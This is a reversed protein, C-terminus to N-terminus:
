GEPSESTVLRDPDRRTRRNRIITRLWWVLLFGLSIISLWIGLGSFATSRITFQDSQLLVQGDVTRLEYRVLFSGSSRVNFPIDVTSRGPPVTVVATNAPLAKGADSSTSSLQVRDSRLTFRLKLPAPGDNQFEMPVVTRSATLTVTPPGTIRVVSLWRTAAQNVDDIYARQQRADLGLTTALLLRKSAAATRPDPETTSSTYADLLSASALTQAPLPDLIGRPTNSIHLHPADAALDTRVSSALQPLPIVEALEPEQALELLSRVTRTPQADAPLDIVLPGGDGDLARLATAAVFLNQAHADDTRPATVNLLPDSAVAAISNREGALRFLRPRREGFPTMLAPDVVAMTIKRAALVDVAEATISPDAPYLDTSISPSDLRERTVEISAQMSRTLDPNQPNASWAGLHLNSYPRVLTPHHRMALRLREGRDGAGARQDSFLADLSEGFFSASILGQTDAELLQVLNEWRLSTDAGMAIDGNPRTSVESPGTIVTALQPVPPADADRPPVIVMGVVHVAVVDDGRRLTLVVPRVGTVDSLRALSEPPITVLISGEDTRPFVGIPVRPSGIAPRGFDLRRAGRRVDASAGDRLLALAEIPDSGRTGFVEWKVTDAETLGDASISASFAEGATVLTTVTLLPAIDTPNQQEAEPPSASATHALAATVALVIVVWGCIRRIRTM